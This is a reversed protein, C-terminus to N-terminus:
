FRLDETFLERRGRYEPCPDADNVGAIIGLIAIVVYKKSKVRQLLYKPTTTNLLKGLFEKHGLFTIIIQLGSPDHRFQIIALDAGRISSSQPVCQAIELHEVQSKKLTTRHM